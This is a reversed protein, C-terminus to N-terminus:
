TSFVNKNLGYLEDRNEFCEKEFISPNNLVSEKTFSKSYSFSNLLFCTRFILLLLFRQTTLQIRIADKEQVKKRRDHKM